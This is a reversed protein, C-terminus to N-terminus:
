KKPAISKQIAKWHKKMDAGMARVEDTDINKLAAYKATVKDVLADYAEQNVEKLGELKELVEGKAKLAWSKIKKKKSSDLKGYLFYAGAVAAVAAAAIGLGKAGKNKIDM